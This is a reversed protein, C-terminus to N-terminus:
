RNSAQFNLCQEQYFRPGHHVHSVQNSSQNIKKIKKSKKRNQISLNVQSATVHYSSARKVGAYVQLIYGSTGSDADLLGSLIVSGTRSDVDFVCAVVDGSFGTVGTLFYEVSEGGNTAAAVLRAAIRGIEGGIQESESVTWEYVTHSFSLLNEAGLRSAVVLDVTMDTSQRGDGSQDRAVVTLSYRPM